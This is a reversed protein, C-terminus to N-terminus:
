KMSDVMADIIEGNDADIEWSFLGGLEHQKVYSGKATVSRPNDYSILTGTAANWLYPAEAVDDYYYTFGNVGSGSKGGLYNSVIDKYDLVGNEWTGKAPGNGQGSFPNDLQAGTVGKWGRGYMAAGLVLKRAPVGAAILNNIASAGDFGEHLNAAYDFLGAHHGLEGSWAGYFDYTMAFIYDMYGEAGAYNVADIKGPGAGVASTLEYERGTEAELTDLGQRLDRMLYVYAQRDSANGLAGNAGGGGPFEWDIDAGDFFDYTRLFNVVSNVFVARNATSSAMSFFPDSLTWGGISPIVKLHPNAKKLKILQGFNGRIPDDWKDGPYSKELAAYKDHVVVEYDQKGACQQVLVSYGSANAQQLSQNPGCVPIFGYLIHTLKSAPMDMVHYNRGYVGWEVFYSAVVHDRQTDGNNTNNDGTDTDNNDSDTNDSDSNDTASDDTDDDGSDNADDTNSDDNGSNDSNDNNDSSSDDESGNDSGDDSDADDNSGGTSGGNSTGEDTSGGCSNALAWAQTWYLGVGPAYAWDAASSCWGGVVCEYSDGANAVVDGSLYQSGSVFSPADCDAENDGSGNDATSDGPDVDGDSGPSDDGNDDSGPGDTDVVDVEDCAEAIKWAQTWFMGEGPEYAWDAESTCWGGIVCEYTGGANNVIDGANYNLGSVFANASCQSSDNDDGNQGDDNAGTNDTNDDGSDSDGNGSDSGDTDTGGGQGGSNGNGVGTGMVTVDMCTYFTEASDSREWINYIVQDGDKGEPLQCSMSYRGNQLAVNGYECFPAPELDAWTLANTADYGDKTIYFDWRKTAHPATGRFVFEFNGDADAQIPTKKWDDRALDLGRYKVNGGSCLMGDPVFAKDAGAANQSIANWDYLPQKGGIRVAEKCADSQPNEPGELFCQYDRSVPNEMTGHAWAGGSLFGSGLISITIALFQKKM